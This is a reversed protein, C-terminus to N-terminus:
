VQAKTDYLARLEYWNQNLADKIDDLFRSIILANEDEFCLDENHPTLSIFVDLDNLEIQATGNCFQHNQCRLFRCFFTKSFFLVVFLRQLMRQWYIFTWVNYRCGQPEVCVTQRRSCTLLTTNYGVALTFMPLMLQLLCM